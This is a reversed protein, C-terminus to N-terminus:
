VDHRTLRQIGGFALGHSPTRGGVYRYEHHYMVSAQEGCMCRWVARGDATVAGVEM